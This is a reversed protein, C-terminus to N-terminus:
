VGFQSLHHDLHKYYLVNWEEISLKGFNPNELQNFHEPGLSLTKKLYAILREKEPEVEKSDLVRFEPATRSNKPYPKPGVVMPKVVLKLFFKKIAGPKPYKKDLTLEYIVNCHSLMQGASMKGWLPKTETSIKNLRDIILNVDKSEFINKM